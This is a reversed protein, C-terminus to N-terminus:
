ARSRRGPESQALLRGTHADNLATSTTTTGATFARSRVDAGSDVPSRYAQGTFVAVSRARPVRLRCLWLRLSEQAEEALHRAQDQMANTRASMM